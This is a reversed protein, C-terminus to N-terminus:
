KIFENPDNERYTLLPPERDPSVGAEFTFHERILEVVKLPLLAIPIELPCARECAGCEVCRGAMHLARGAHFFLNESRTAAPSLWYPRQAEAFCEKCYCLPCANRCAYCRICRQFEQAFFEWRKEPSIEELRKLSDEKWRERPVYEVRPGVLYDFLPPNPYLCRQCTDELFPGISQNKGQFTFTDLHWTFDQPRLPGFRKELKRLSVMGYCPLGVVVVNDRKIQGERLLVTITRADCGKALVAVKKKQLDKVLLYRTLNSGSFHDFTLLEVDEKKRCLFPRSRFPLTGSAYGIICEVEDLLKVSLRHLEEEYM